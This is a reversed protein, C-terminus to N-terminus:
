LKELFDRIDWNKRDFVKKVEEKVNISFYYDENKSFIEKSYEHLSNFTYIFGIIM